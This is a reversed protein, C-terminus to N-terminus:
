RVELEARIATDLMDRDFPVPRVGDDGRDLRVLRFDEAGEREFAEHAARICEWSHTTSFLQGDSKRAMAALSRWVDVMRAHHLGNDIEDILVVGSRAYAVALLASVLRTLGAGLLPLPILRGLGIDARLISQQGVAAVSLRKLRPELMSAAAVVEDTRRLDELYSFREADERVSRAQTALFIGPVAFTESGAVFQVTGDPEVTGRASGTKGHSDTFNLQLARRGTESTLMAQPSATSEPPNVPVTVNSALSLTLVQTSGDSWDSRLEAKSEIQRNHFLWGWVEEPDAMTTLGRFANLRVSLVPNSPGLLLFIAELLATKGVGNLGTILNVRPFQDLEFHRFGRFNTISIAKIM